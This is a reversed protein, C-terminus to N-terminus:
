SEVNLLFTEQRKNVKISCMSLLIIIHQENGVRRWHIKRIKTFDENPTVGFWGRGRFTKRGWMGNKQLAGIDM